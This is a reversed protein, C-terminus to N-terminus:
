RGKPQRKWFGDNQLCSGVHGGLARLELARRQIDCVGAGRFKM